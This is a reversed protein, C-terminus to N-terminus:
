WQVNTYVKVSILESVCSQRKGLRPINLFIFGASTEQYDIGPFAFPSLCTTPFVIVHKTMDGYGILAM